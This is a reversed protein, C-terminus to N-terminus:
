TNMLYLNEGERPKRNVKKRQVKYQLVPSSKKRPGLETKVESHCRDKSPDSPLM